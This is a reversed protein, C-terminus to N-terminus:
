IHELMDSPLMRDEGLIAKTEDGAKAHTAVGLLAAEFGDKARPMLGLITGALVDGCGAVAMGSNGWVNVATPKGPRSIITRADKAVITCCLEQALKGTLAIVDRKLSDMSFTQSYVAELLRKLEGMHPTMVIDRSKNSSNRVLDLLEEDESILNLADADLLLPKDTNCLVQRLLMAAEDTKSLGPGIAIADCWSFADELHDYTDVLLEPQEKVYFLKLEECTLLKVMGCGSRLAARSALLAAGPYQKSGALLLVKGFSGKNGNQVRSLGERVCDCSDLTVVSPAVAKMAQFPFGIDKVVLQGCYQAGPFFLQGLKRFGFTVTKHAQFAEEVAGTDTDVGTPIDIAIHLGQMQNLQKCLQKEAETLTRQAGIGYVGDVIITYEDEELDTVFTVSYNTLIDLQKKNEETRRKDTEWLYVTVDVGKECLLRAVAFADAGNNGRGAVVLASEGFLEMGAEAFSAEIEELVSLAAREMLVMSPIGIQNITYTDCAKMQAANM